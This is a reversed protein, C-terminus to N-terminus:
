RPETWHDEAVGIADKIDPTMCPKIRQDIKKKGIHKKASELISKRFKTELRDIDLNDPNKQLNKEIEEAYSEWDTESLRWKFKPKDNVKTM